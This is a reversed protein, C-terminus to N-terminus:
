AIRRLTICIEYTQKLFTALFSTCFVMAERGLGREGKQEGQKKSLVEVLKVNPVPKQDQIDKKGFLFRVTWARPLKVKMALSQCTLQCTILWQQKSLHIFIVFKLLPLNRFFSHHQTPPLIVLYNLRVSQGVRQRDPQSVSQSVSQITLKGKLSLNVSQISKDVPNIIHIPWRLSIRFSVNRANARRRLM